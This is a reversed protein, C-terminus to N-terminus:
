RHVQIPLGLGAPHGWGDGSSALHRRAYGSVQPVPLRDRWGAALLCRQFDNLAQEHRQELMRQLLPPAFCHRLSARTMGAVEPWTCDWATATLFFEDTLQAGWVGPDDTSLCVPVGVWTDSFRHALGFSTRLRDRVDPATRSVNVLLRAWVGLGRAAAALVRRYRHVMAMVSEARGDTDVYGFPGTQIELYSVQEAAARRLVRDLLAEILGPNKRLYKLERTVAFFGDPSDRPDALFV